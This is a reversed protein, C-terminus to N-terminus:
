RWLKAIWLAILVGAAIIAVGTWLRPTLRERILRLELLTPDPRPPGIKPRSQKDVPLEFTETIEEKLHAEFVAWSGGRQQQVTLQISRLVGDAAIAAKWLVNLSESPVNISNFKDDPLFVGIRDV